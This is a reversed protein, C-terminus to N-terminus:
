DSRGYEFGAARLLRMAHAYSIPYITKIPGGQLAPIAEIERDAKKLPRVKVPSLLREVVRLYLYRDKACTQYVRALGVLENRDTQYAIIMDGKHLQELAPVADSNGWEENHDGEFYDRWDGYLSQYERCQSNCKYIWWAPM